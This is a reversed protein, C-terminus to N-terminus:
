LTKQQPFNPPAFNPRNTKPTKGLKITNKTRFIANQPRLQTWQAESWPTKRRLQRQPGKRLDKAFSPIQCVYPPAPPQMSWAPPVFISHISKGSFRPIKNKLDSRASYSRIKFILCKRCVKHKNKLDSRVACSRIKFILDRAERPFANRGFLRKGASSDKQAKAFIELLVHSKACMDRVPLSWSRRRSAHIYQLYFCEAWVRHNGWLKTVPAPPFAMFGLM